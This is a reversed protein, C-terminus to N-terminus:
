MRITVTADNPVCVTYLFIHFINGDMATWGQVTFDGQFARNAGAVKPHTNFPNFVPEPFTWDRGTIDDNPFEGRFSDLGSMGEPPSSWAQQPDHAPTRDLYDRPASRGIVATPSWIVRATGTIYAQHFSYQDRDVRRGLVTDDFEDWDESVNLIRFWNNYGSLPHDTNGIFQYGSPTNRVLFQNYPVYTSPSDPHPLAFGLDPYTNYWMIFGGYLNNLYDWRYGSLSEEYRRVEANGGQIEDATPDICILDAPDDRGGFAATTARTSAFIPVYGDTHFLIQRGWTNDFFREFRIGCNRANMVNDNSHRFQFNQDFVPSTDWIRNRRTCCAFESDGETMGTFSAFQTFLNSGPDDPRYDEPKGWHWSPMSYGQVNLWNNNISFPYSGPDSGIGPWCEDNLLLGWRLSNPVNTSDLGGLGNANGCNGDTDSFDFDEIPRMRDDTTWVWSGAPGGNSGDYTLTLSVMKYERLYPVYDLIQQPTEGTPELELDLTIGDGRNERQWLLPPQTNPLAYGGQLPPFDGIDNEIGPYLNGQDIADWGEFSFNVEMWM